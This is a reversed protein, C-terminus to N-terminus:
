CCFPLGGVTRLGVVWLVLLLAVSELLVGRTVCTYQIPVEEPLVSCLLLQVIALLRSFLVATPNVDCTLARGSSFDRSVPSSVRSSSQFSRISSVSFPQLYQMAIGRARFYRKPQKVQQGARPFDLRAHQGCVGGYKGTSMNCLSTM